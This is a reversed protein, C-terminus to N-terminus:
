NYIRRVDDFFRKKLDCLGVFNTTIVAYNCRFSYYNLTNVYLQCRFKRLLKM